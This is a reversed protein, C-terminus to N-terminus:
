TANQWSRSNLQDNVIRDRAAESLGLHAGEKKVKDTLHANIRTVVSRRFDATIQQQIMKGEKGALFTNLAIESHHGFSTRGEMLDVAITTNELNFCHYDPDNFLRMFDQTLDHNVYRAVSKALHFWYFHMQFRTMFDETSINNDKDGKGKITVMPYNDLGKM